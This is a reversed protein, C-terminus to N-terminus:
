GWSTVIAPAHRLTQLVTCYQETARRLSALQKSTADAADVDFSVRIASFGVPANRAIGLTGRLDLDGEVQVRVHDVPTGQAAAVMQCTIQACAALAGLLLDGSCPSVGSGGVGAHAEAEYVARGIDVSCATTSTEDAVARLTVMAAAADQRYHQKIPAQVERLSM